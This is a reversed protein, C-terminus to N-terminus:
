LLLSWCTVNRAAVQSCEAQSVCQIAIAVWIAIPILCDCRDDLSQRLKSCKVKSFVACLIRSVCTRTATCRSLPRQNQPSTKVTTDKAHSYQLRSMEHSSAAPSQLSDPSVFSCCRLRTPAKSWHVCLPRLAARAVRVPIAMLGAGCSPM